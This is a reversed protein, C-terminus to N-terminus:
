RCLRPHGNDASVDAVLVGGSNLNSGNLYLFGFEDVTISHISGLTGLGPINPAWHTSTVNTPDTMNVVLVGGGGETVAYIYHGFSKVERWQSNVDPIFAIEQINYPDSLNVVALGTATGVAAYETGDEPDIYGWLSSLQQTYDIQDTLTMNLQAFANGLSVALFCALFLKKM